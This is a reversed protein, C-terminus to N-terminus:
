TDLVEEVIVSCEVECGEDGGSLNVFVRVKDGPTIKCRALVGDKILEVLGENSYEIRTVRKTEQTLTMAPQKNQRRM